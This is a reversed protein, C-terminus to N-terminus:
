EQKLIEDIETIDWVNEDTDKLKGNEDVSLTYRIESYDFTNLTVNSDCRVAFAEGQQSAIQPEEGERELYVLDRYKTIVLYWEDGEFEYSQVAEIKESGLSEFIRNIYIDRNAEGEAGSGLYSIAFYPSGQSEEFPLCNAYENRYDSDVYVMGPGDLMGPPPESGCGLLSALMTFLAVINVFKM